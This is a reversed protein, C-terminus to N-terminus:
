SHHESRRPFSVEGTPVDNKFHAGATIDFEASVLSALMSQGGLTFADLDVWKYLSALSAQTITGSPNALETWTSGIWETDMWLVGDHADPAISLKCSTMIADKLQKSTSAVPSRATLTFFYGENTAKPMPLAARQQTFMTWVDSAATYATSCQLIGPMLYTLLQPTAPMSFKCTPIKLASDNYAKSESTGRTGDHRPITINGPDRGIMFDTSPLGIPTTDIATGWAAQKEVSYAYDAQIPSAPTVPM